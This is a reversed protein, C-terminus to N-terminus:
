KGKKAKMPAMITMNKPKRTFSSFLGADVLHSVKELQKKTLKIAQGNKVLTGFVTMFRATNVLYPM